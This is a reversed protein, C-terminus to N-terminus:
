SPWPLGRERAKLRQPAQPNTPSSCGPVARAAAPCTAGGGAGGAGGRRRGAQAVAQGGPGPLRSRSAVKRPPHCPGQWFCNVRSCGPALVGARAGRRSCGPALVGARPPPSRLNDRASVVYLPGKMRPASQAAGPTARGEAARHCLLDCRRETRSCAARGPHPGEERGLRAQADESRRAVPRLRVRLQHGARGDQQDREEVQPPHVVPAEVQQVLAEHQVDGLPHHLPLHGVPVEEGLEGRPGEQGEGGDERHGPRRHEGPAPHRHDDAEEDGGEEVEAPPADEGAGRGCQGGQGERHPADPLAPEVGVVGPESEGPAHHGQLAGQAGHGGGGGTAGAAPSRPSRASRRGAGVAAGTGGEQPGGPGAEGAPDGRETFLVHPEVGQQAQGAGDEEEAGCGPAPSEQQGHQHAQRRERHRQGQHGPQCLLPGKIPEQPIRHPNGQGDEGALHRGRVRGDPGGPGSGLVDGALPGPDEAQDAEQGGQEETERRQAEEEQM